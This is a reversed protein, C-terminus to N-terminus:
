NAAATVAITIIIIVITVIITMTIMPICDYKRVYVLAANEPTSCKSLSIPLPCPTGYGHTTFSGRYSRHLGAYQM